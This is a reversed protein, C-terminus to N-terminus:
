ASTEGDGTDSDSEFGLAENARDLLFHLVDPANKALISLCVLFYMGLETDGPEFSQLRKTLRELAEGSDASMRAM